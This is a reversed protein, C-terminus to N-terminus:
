RQCVPCFHSSRQAIVVRRIWGRGCTLCRQGARGYVRHAHQFSGSAGSVDVYQGDGLTSGGAAIANAIVAGIATHLRRESLPSLSNSRRDPRVRAWHLIEDGYINGLGAIVTQDLLLAKIQRRRTRLIRRLEALSIQDPEPGLGALEPITTELQLPDFAVVEGFTRPDIFWLEQGDDLIFAVHTHRPRSERRAAAIIQGSMRLHIMIEHGSDLVIILYKGRRKLGSITAGVSGEILHHASTRRVPRPHCVETDVIQRGVARGELGRRITEVEPLEPM